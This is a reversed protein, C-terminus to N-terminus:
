AWCSMQHHTRLVDQYDCASLTCCTASLGFRGGGLCQESLVLHVSEIIGNRFQRAIECVQNCVFETVEYAIFNAGFAELYTLAITCAACELLSSLSSDTQVVKKM